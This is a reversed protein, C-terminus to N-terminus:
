QTISFDSYSIFVIKAKDSLQLNWMEDKNMEGKYWTESSTHLFYINSILVPYFAMPDDYFYIYNNNGVAVSDTYSKSFDLFNDAYIYAEYKDTPKTSFSNRYEDYLKMTKTSDNLQYSASVVINKNEKLVYAEKNKVFNIQDDFKMKQFGENKLTNSVSSIKEGVMSTLRNEINEDTLNLNARECSCFLLTILLINFTKKM